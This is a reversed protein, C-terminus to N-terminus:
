AEVIDDASLEGLVVYPIHAQPVATGDYTIQVELESLMSIARLRREGAVLTLSDDQLVIPHLLGKKRISNSLEVLADESFFRRQRNTILISSLPLTKM